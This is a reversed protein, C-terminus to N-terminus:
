LGSSFILVSLYLRGDWLAGHPLREYLFRASLYPWLKYTSTEWEAFHANNASNLALRRSSVRSSSPACISTRVVSIARQRRQGPCRGWRGLGKQSPHKSLLHWVLNTNLEHCTRAMRINIKGDCIENCTRAIRKFLKHSKFCLKKRNSFDLSVKYKKLTKLTVFM